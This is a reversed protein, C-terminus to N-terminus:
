SYGQALNLTNIIGGPVGIDLVVLVQSSGNDIVVLVTSSGYYGLFALHQSPLSVHM